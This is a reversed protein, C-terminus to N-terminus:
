IRDGFLGGEITLGDERTSGEGGDGEDYEGRRDRVWWELVGVGALLAALTPWGALLSVVVLEAGEAVLQQVYAFDVLLYAALGVLPVLLGYRRNLAVPLGVLVLSVGFVYWLLVALHGVPSLTPPAGTDLRWLPVAARIVFVGFYLVAAMVGVSLARFDAESPPTKLRGLRARILAEVLGPVAVFPGVVLVGVLWEDRHLNAVFPLVGFAVVLCLPSLVRYRVALYTAVTTVAFSGAVVLLAIGIEGPSLGGTQSVYVVELWLVYGAAVLAAIAGTTLSAPVARDRFM